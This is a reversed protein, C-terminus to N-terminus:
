KREMYILNDGVLARRLNNVFLEDSFNRKPISEYDPNDIYFSHIQGLIETFSVNDKVDVLSELVRKEENPLLNKEWNDLVEKRYGRGMQSDTSMLRDKLKRSM